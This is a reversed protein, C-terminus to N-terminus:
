RDRRLVYAVLSDLEDRAPGVALHQVARRARAAAEEAMQRAQDIADTQRVLAIAEAMHAPDDFGAVLRDRLAPGVTPDQLAILVPATLFGQHLDHGVPKGVTAQDGTFDLLDDVIQFAVGLAMGFDRATAMLAEQGSVLAAGECGCALLAGTKAEIQRIYRAMALEVDFRGQYQLIEGDCIAKVTKACLSTLENLGVTTILWSAHALLFDGAIVAVRDDWHQNVSPINRRLEARDIVDDHVLTATHLIELAGALIEHGSRIGGLARGWLLVLIPRLRKGSAKFLHGGAELLMPEYPGFGAGLSAEVRALDPAIASLFPPLDLAVAVIVQRLRNGM